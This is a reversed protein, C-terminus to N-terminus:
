LKEDTTANTYTYSSRLTRAVCFCLNPNPEIFGLARVALPPTYDALYWFPIM